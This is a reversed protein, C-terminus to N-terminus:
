GGDSASARRALAALLRDLAPTARRLEAEGIEAGLADAWARQAAQIAALAARGRPSLRLLKARLLVLQARVFPPRLDRPPEETAAAAQVAEAAALQFLDATVLHRHVEVNDFADVGGGDRHDVPVPAM